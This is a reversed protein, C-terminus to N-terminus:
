KGARRCPPELPKSTKQDSVRKLQFWEFSCNNGVTNISRTSLLGPYALLRTRLAKKQDTYRKLKGTVAGHASPETLFCFKFGLSSSPWFFVSFFLSIRIKPVLSVSLLVFLFCWHFLFKTQISDSLLTSDVLEFEQFSKVQSMQSFFSVM